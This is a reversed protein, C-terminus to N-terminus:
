STRIPSVARRRSPLPAKEARLAEGTVHWMHNCDSCIRYCGSPSPRTNRLTTSRCHPCSPTSINPSGMLPAYAIGSARATRKQVDSPQLLFSTMAGRSLATNCAWGSQPNPNTALQPTMHRHQRRRLPLSGGGVKRSEGEPWREDICQVRREVHSRRADVGIIELNLYGFVRGGTVHRAKDKRLM